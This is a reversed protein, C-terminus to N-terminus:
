EQSIANNLAQLQSNFASQAEEMRIFSLTLAEKQQVLRREIAAIQDDLSRNEKEITEKQKDLIGDTATIAGIYTDLKNTLGNTPDSFLSKVEDLRGTLANDLSTQDSISLSSGLGEFGIGIDEM